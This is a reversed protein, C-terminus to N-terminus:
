ENVYVADWALRCAGYLGADGGLASAEVRTQAFAVPQAWREAELRIQPLLRTAPGFVGGGFIVVDPNFLSVLNAVAMGWLRVCLDVVESAIPDGAEWAQFIDATRLAEGHERRLMGSYDPRAGVLRIAQRVM